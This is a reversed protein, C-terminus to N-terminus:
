EVVMFKQTLSGVKLLYAGAALDNVALQLEHHGRETEPFLATRVLRGDLAVIQLPTAEGTTTNYEVTLQDGQRVPSPYALLFDIGAAYRHAEIIPSLHTGGDRGVARIRYFTTPLHSRMTDVQSYNRQGDIATVSQTEEFAYGDASAEVVYSAMDDADIEWHLTALRGDVEASTHIWEIPLVLPTTTVIVDDVFYYANYGIDVASNVFQVTTMADTFFNGVMVANYAVSPVFSGVVTTWNVKDSIVATSFLHATNNLPFNANFSSCFQLGMRNVAYESNDVLNIKFSLYYTTGVVLPSSLPVYMFERLDPLYTSAFSGYFLGGCYAQGTAAAQFGFYNTPVDSYISASCSHLYEPSNKANNWPTAYTLQSATNPCTSYTEFSFNQVLNQGIAFVACACLCALLTFRKM